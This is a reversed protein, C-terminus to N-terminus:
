YMVRVIVGVSQIDSSVYAKLDCQTDHISVIPNYILTADALRIRWQYGTDGWTADKRSEEPLPVWGLKLFSDFKVLVACPRKAAVCKGCATYVTTADRRSCKIKDHVVLECQVCYQGNKEKRRAFRDWDDNRAKTGSQLPNGHRRLWETIPQPLTTMSVWTDDKRVVTPFM